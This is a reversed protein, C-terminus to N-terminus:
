ALIRNDINEKAVLVSTKWIERQMKLRMKACCISYKRCRTQKRTFFLAAYKLPSLFNILLETDWIFSIQYCEIWNETVWEDMARLSFVTLVSDCDSVWWQSRTVRGEMNSRHLPWGQTIEEHPKLTISTFYMWSQISSVSKSKCIHKDKENYKSRGCDGM